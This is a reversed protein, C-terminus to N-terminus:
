LLWCHQFGVQRRDTILSGLIIRNWEAGPSVKIGVTASDEGEEVRNM